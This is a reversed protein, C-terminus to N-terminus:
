PDYRHLKALAVALDYETALMQDVTQYYYTLEMLYSILNIEGKEFAAELLREHNSAQLDQQFIRLTQDLSSAAAHSAKLQNYLQIGQHTIEEQMAWMNARALKVTNKNEWLPISVGAVWGHFQEHTLAESVYGASFRPLSRAKALNVEGKKMEVEQQLWQLVPNNISTEQYWQQFNANMSQNPFATGNYEVAQGGNLRQLEALHHAREIRMTNAQQQLTALNMKAKNYELQSTEGLQLMREFAESLRTAHDLRKDMEQLMANAHILEYVLLRAEFRIATKQQQFILDLQTNRAHSLRNLHTYVTPFAFSQRFSINKKPGVHDPSGWFYAYEFEPDHLFIGTRNEIKEADLKAELAKLTTNNQEIQSIIEEAGNQAHIGSWGVFLLILFISPKIM